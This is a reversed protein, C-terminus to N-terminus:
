LAIVNPELFVTAKAVGVMTMGACAPVNWSRRPAFTKQNKKEFFFAKSGLKRVPSDLHPTFRNNNFNADARFDVAINGGALVLVQIGL